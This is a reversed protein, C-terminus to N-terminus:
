NEKIYKVEPAKLPKLLAARATTLTKPTDAQLYNWILPKITNINERGYGSDLLHKRINKFAHWECFQGLTSQMSYSLLASLGKVQDGVMVRPLLYEEWIIEKLKEFVFDFSAKSESPVFCFSAPFSDGTNTVETLVILPLKLNNINFTTDIEVMFSSCFRQAWQVQTNCMFFLMELYRNIPEATAPDMDYKYKNHCYYGKESLFGFLSRIDAGDQSKDFGRQSNYFARRDISLSQAELIYSAQSYTIQSARLAVAQKMAATYQPHRKAYIPYALPNPVM